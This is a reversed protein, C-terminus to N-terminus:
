IKANKLINTEFSNIRKKKETFKRVAIEVLKDILEEYKIGSEQWLYYSMSGPITNVEILFIEETTPNAFFDVRVVGNCNLNYFIKKSVEQLKQTLNKSIPAPTRRNASAMGSKKSGSNQYKDAFSLLESSKIPQETVSSVCDKGYGLVSVNVEICDKVESEALVRSDYKFTEEIVKALDAQKKVRAIGISSGSNSPKLYLPFDLNCIQDIVFDRNTKWDESTFWSFKPQPIDCSKLALRTFIKDFVLSSSTVDSSQYPIEALEFLSQVKGSEGYDGHFCLIAVDIENEDNISIFYKQLNTPNYLDQKGYYSIDNLSSGTWWNGKKDVYVPILNYKSKDVNKMLQVATIVSVEHELSIGGYIVGLNKM